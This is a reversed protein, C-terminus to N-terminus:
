VKKVLLAFVLGPGKPGPSGVTPSRLTDNFHTNKTQNGQGLSPEPRPTYGMAAGDNEKNRVPAQLSVLGGM